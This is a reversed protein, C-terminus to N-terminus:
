QRGLFLPEGSTIISLTLWILSALDSWGKWPVNKGLYRPKTSNLRCMTAKNLLTLILLVKAPNGITLSALCTNTKDFSVNISTNHLLPLLLIFAREVNRIGTVFYKSLVLHLLCMEVNIIQVHVEVWSVQPIWVEVYEENMRDLLITIGGEEHKFWARIKSFSSNYPIRQQM